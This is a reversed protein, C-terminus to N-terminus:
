KTAIGNRLTAGLVATLILQSAEALALDGTLYSAIAGLVALGATIYTKKGQFKGFM